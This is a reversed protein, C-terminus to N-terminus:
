TGQHNKLRHWVRLMQNYQKAMGMYTEKHSTKCGQIPYGTCENKMSERNQGGFADLLTYIDGSALGRKLLTRM